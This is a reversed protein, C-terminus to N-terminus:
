GPVHIAKLLTETVWQASKSPTRVCLHQAPLRFCCLSYHGAGFLHASHLFISSSFNM